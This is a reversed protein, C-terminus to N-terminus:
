TSLLNRLDDFKDSTEIDGVDLRNAFNINNINRDYKGVSSYDENNEM